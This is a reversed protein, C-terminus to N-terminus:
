ADTDQWTERHYLYSVEPLMQGFHGTNMIM